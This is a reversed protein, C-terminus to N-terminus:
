STRAKRAGGTTLRYYRDVQPDDLFVALVRSVAATVRVSGAM